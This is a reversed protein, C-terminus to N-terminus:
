NAPVRPPYAHMIRESYGVLSEFRNYFTDASKRVEAATAYPEGCV